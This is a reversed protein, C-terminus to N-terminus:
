PLYNDTIPRHSKQKGRNMATFKPHLFEQLVFLLLGPGYPAGIRRHDGDGVREALARFPHPVRSANVQQVEVGLM